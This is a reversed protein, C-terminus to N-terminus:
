DCNGKFTKFEAISWPWPSGKTLTIRILKTRTSRFPITILGTGPREILNRPIEWRSQSFVTYWGSEELVEVVYGTPLREIGLGPTFGIGSICHKESAEFEVWDGSKQSWKGNWQTSLDDDLALETDETWYNARLLWSAKLLEGTVEHSTAVPGHATDPPVGIDVLAMHDDRVIIKAGPLSDLMQAIRFMPPTMQDGWDIILHTAGFMYAIRQSWKLRVEKDKLRAAGSGIAQSAPAKYTSKSTIQRHGHHIIYNVWYAGDHSLYPIVHYGSGRVFAIVAEEPLAAAASLVESNPGSRLAPRYAQWTPQADFISWLGLALLVAFVTRHLGKMSAYALFRRASVAAVISLFVPLLVVIRYESRMGDFGPLYYFFYQHISALERGYIEIVPNLAVDVVLLATAMFVAGRNRIALVHAPRWFPLILAIWLGIHFPLTSERSFALWLGVAPLVIPMLRMPSLRRRIVRWILVIGSLFVGLATLISVLRGPFMEDQCEEQLESIGLIKLQCTYPAKPLVDNTGRKMYNSVYEYTNVKSLELRTDVYSVQLVALLPLLALTPLGARIVFNLLTKRTYAEILSIPVLLILPVVFYMGTYLSSYLQVVFMSPALICRRWTPKRVARRLFLIGLIGWFLTTNAPHFYRIWVFPSLAGVTAFVAATWPHHIIDNILVHLAAANFAIIAIMTLNFAWTEGPTVLNLLGFILGNTVAPENYTGTNLYPAFWRFDFFGHGFTLSQFREWSLYTHILGDYWYIHSAVLHDGLKDMHPLIGIFIAIFPLIAPPIHSKIYTLYKM